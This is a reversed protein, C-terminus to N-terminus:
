QCQTLLFNPTTHPALPLSAYFSVIWCMSLGEEGEEPGYNPVVLVQTKQRRIDWLGPSHFWLHTDSGQQISHLILSLM